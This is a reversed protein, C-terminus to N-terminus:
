QRKVRYNESNGKGEDKKGTLTLGWINSCTGSFIDVIEPKVPM